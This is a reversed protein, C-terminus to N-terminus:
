TRNLRIAELYEPPFQIPSKLREIAAGFEKSERQEKLIALVDDATLPINVVLGRHYCPVGKVDPNAIVYEGMDLVWDGNRYCGDTLPLLVDLVLGADLGMLASINSIGPGTNMAKRIMGEIHHKGGFYRAVESAGLHHIGETQAYAKLSGFVPKLWQGSKRDHFDSLPVPVRALGLKHVAEDCSNSGCSNLAEKVIAAGAPLLLVSKEL